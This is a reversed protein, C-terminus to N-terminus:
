VKADEAAWSDAAATYILPEQDVLEQANESVLLGRCQLIKVASSQRSQSGEVSFSHLQKLFALWQRHASKLSLGGVNVIDTNPNELWLWLKQKVREQSSLMRTVLAKYKLDNVYEEHLLGEDEDKVEHMQNICKEIFWPMMNHSLRHAVASLVNSSVVARMWHQTDAILSKFAAIIVGFILVWKIKSTLNTESSWV